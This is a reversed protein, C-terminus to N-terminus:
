CCRKMMAVGVHLGAIALIDIVNTDLDVVGPGHGTSPVTVYLNGFRELPLLPVGPGVLALYPASM